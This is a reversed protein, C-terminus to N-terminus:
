AKVTPPRAPATRRSDASAPLAGAVAAGALRAARGLLRLLHLPYYLVAAAPPLPLLQWDETTPITALHLLYRARRRPSTMARLYFRNGAGPRAGPPGFLTAGVEAGLGAVVPDRSLERWVEPPLPAELLRAALFLGLHLMRRGGVAEARRTVEEWDLSATAELLEAVDCIWKLSAWRHKTGHLCLFLLLDSPGLSPVAAGALHVSQLRGQLDELRLPAGFYHPMLGWHLEVTVRGARDVYDLSCESQLYALWQFGSLALRPRYGALELIRRARPVDRGAVLVDLDVFTRLAPSGYAVAGLVPGKFPVALVDQAQFLRLLRLLETTLFLSHAATAYSAGQLRELVAGPVVGQEQPLAKLSRYLLPEVELRRAARLLSEWDPSAEQTV